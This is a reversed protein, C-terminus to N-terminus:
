HAFLGAIPHGGGLTGVSIWVSGVLSGGVCVNQSIEGLSREFCGM